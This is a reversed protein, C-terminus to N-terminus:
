KKLYEITQEKAKSNIEKELTAYYDLNRRNGCNGNNNGTTRGGRSGTSSQWSSSTNNRDQCHDREMEIRAREFLEKQKREYM